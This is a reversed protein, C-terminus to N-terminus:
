LNVGWTKLISDAQIKSIGELFYPDDKTSFTYSWGKSKGAEPKFNYSIILVKRNQKSGPGFYWDSESVITDKNYAIWKRGHFAKKEENAKKTNVWLIIAGSTFTPVATWEKPLIPLGIRNRENNYKIGYLRQEKSISKDIVEMKKIRIVDTINKHTELYKVYYLNNKNFGLEETRLLNQNKDIYNQKDIFEFEIYVPTYHIFDCGSNNNLLFKIMSFSRITNVIGSQNSNCEFSLGNQMNLNKDMKLLDEKTGSTPILHLEFKNNYDHKFYFFGYGRYTNSNQDVKTNCSLLFCSIFMSCLLITKSKIFM